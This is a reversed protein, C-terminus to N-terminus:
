KPHCHLCLKSGDLPKRLLKVDMVASNHVDHCSPCEVKANFFKLERGYKTPDMNNLDHCNLCSPSGFWQTQHIWPIGIPHDDSLDTGLVVNDPAMTSGTAGGFSDLAVTGDHCSLCMRSYSGPGPQEAAVDMTSSNYLTYTAGSVAHNWIPAESTASGSHPAHCISCIEGNSWGATSFDHASNQIGAVAPFTFMAFFVAAACGGIGPNRSIWYKLKSMVGDEDNGTGAILVM